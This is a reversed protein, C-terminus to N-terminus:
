SQSITHPEDGSARLMVSLVGIGILGVIILFIGRGVGPSTAPRPTPAALARLFTSGVVPAVTVPRALVVAAPAPKKTYRGSDPKAVPKVSAIRVPVEGVNQLLFRRTEASPYFAIGNADVIRYDEIFRAYGPFERAFRDYTEQGYFGGVPDTMSWTWFRYLGSWRSVNEGAADAQRYLSNFSVFDNRLAATSLNPEIPTSIPEVALDLSPTLTEEDGIASITIVFALALIVFIGNNRM